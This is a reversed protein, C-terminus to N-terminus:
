VRTGKAELLKQRAEMIEQLLHEIDREYGPHALFRSLVADWGMGTRAAWVFARLFDDESM